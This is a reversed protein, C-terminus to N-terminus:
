SKALRQRLAKAVAESRSHVQLKEYINRAHFTVTHVSIGMEHAATKQSHGDVFLQLLRSENKTLRYDAHAPPQHTQFFKVVRRAIQPSLPAGGEQLELIANLLKDPRTRKLLYGCAGACMAAFVLEDNEFATLVLFQLRPHREKLVSICANGSMGPLGLDMLVVDPMDQAISRIASEGDPFAATVRFEPSGAILVALGERIACEDEVIAVSVM